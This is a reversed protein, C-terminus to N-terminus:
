CCTPLIIVQHQSELSFRYAALLEDIERADETQMAVTPSTVEPKVSDGGGCCECGPVSCVDEELNIPQLPQAVVVATPTHHLCSLTLQQQQQQPQQQIASMPLTGLSSMVSRSLSSDYDMSPPSDTVLTPHIVAYSMPPPCAQLPPPASLGTDGLGSSFPTLSHGGFVDICSTPYFSSSASSQLLPPLSLPPPPVSPILRPPSCSGRPIGTQISCSDSFTLGSTPTSSSSSSTQQKRQSDAKMRMM